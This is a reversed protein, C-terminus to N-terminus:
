AFNALEQATSITYPKSISGDRINLNITGKPDEIASSPYSWSAANSVSAGILIMFVFSCFKKM